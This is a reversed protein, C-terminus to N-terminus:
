SLDGRNAYELVIYLHFHDIKHNKIQIINNHKLKRLNKIEKEANERM